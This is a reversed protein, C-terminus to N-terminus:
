QHVTFFIKNSKRRKRRKDRFLRKEVNLLETYKEGGNLTGGSDTTLCLRKEKCSKRKKKKNILKGRKKRWIRYAYKKSLKRM